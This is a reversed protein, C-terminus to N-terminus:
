RRRTLLFVIVGTISLAVVVQLFLALVPVGAIWGTGALCAFLIIIAVSASLASSNKIFIYGIVGAFIIPWVFFGLATTYGQMSWSMFNGMIYSVNHFSVSTDNVVPVVPAAIGTYIIDFSEDSWVDNYFSIVGTPSSVVDVLEVGDKYISYNADTDMGSISFSVNGGSTKANFSLAIQFTTLNVIDSEVYSLNIWIANASTVNFYISNFGVYTSAIDISTFEMFTTVSYTENEVVISDTPGINVAMGLM